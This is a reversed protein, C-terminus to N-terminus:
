VFTAGSNPRRQQREQQREKMREGWADIIAQYKDNAEEEDLKGSTMARCIRRNEERVYRADAIERPCGELEKIILSWEAWRGADCGDQTEYHPGAWAASSLFLVAVLGVASILQM